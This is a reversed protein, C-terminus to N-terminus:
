NMKNLDHFKTFKVSPDYKWGSFYINEFTAIVQNDDFEDEEIFKSFEEKFLKYNFLSQYIAAM